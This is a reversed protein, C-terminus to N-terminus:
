GCFHRKFNIERAVWILITQPTELNLQPYSDIEQQPQPPIQLQPILIYIVIKFITIQISIINKVKKLKESKFLLNCGQYYIKFFNLNLVLYKLNKQM